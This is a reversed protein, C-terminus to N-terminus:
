TSLKSKLLEIMIKRFFSFYGQMFDEFKSKPSILTLNGFYLSPYRNPHRPFYNPSNEECFRDALFEHPMKSFDHRERM